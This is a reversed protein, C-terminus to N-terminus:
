RGVAGSENATDSGPPWSRFSSHNIDFFRVDVAGKDIARPEFDLVYDPVDQRASRDPEATSEGGPKPREVPRVAVTSEVPPPNATANSPQCAIAGTLCSAALLLTAAGRGGTPFRSGARHRHRPKSM